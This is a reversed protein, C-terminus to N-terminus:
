FGAKERAELWFASFDGSKIQQEQAAAVTQDWLESLEAQHAFLEANHAEMEDTWVGIEKYYRVAGPHVPTNTAELSKVNFDMTFERAMAADKAAWADRSEWIAKTLVYVTDEDVNAWCCYHPYPSSMLNKPNDETIGAGNVTLKPIDISSIEHVRAWGETDAPDFELWRVGDASSEQEYAKASTVNYFCADIKGDALAEYGMASSSIEYLTVDDLTLGAFALFTVVNTYTSPSAPTIAVTKGKLDAVEYIDSNGRVGFTYGNHPFYAISCVAQPGWELVDYGNIGEQLYYPTMGGTCFASAEGLRAYYARTSETGSPLAKIKLDPFVESIGEIQLAVNTYGGTGVEHAGIVITGAMPIEAQQPQEEQKAPTENESAPAAPAPAPESASNPNEAPASSSGCGSLFLCCVMALALILAISKKM